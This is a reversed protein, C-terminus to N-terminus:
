ATTRSFEALWRLRDPLDPHPLLEVNVPELDGDAFSDIEARTLPWPPGDPVPEEASRSGAHVILTGGPAVMAAVAAIADAHLHIPLAQVTQSELVLDFAHRWDAPLVLLDAVEYRVASDPHRARAARIATASVDFATTDFGLAAVLEADEGLGGGVVVARGGGAAVGRAAWQAIIPHAAGRDWPVAGGDREADTYLQEFWGTADGRALSAAALAKAIEDPDSM